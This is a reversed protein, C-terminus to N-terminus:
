GCGAGAGRCQGAHLDLGAPLRLLYRCVSRDGGQPRRRHDGGLQPAGYAGGGSVSTTYSDGVDLDTFGITGASTQIGDEAVQGSGDSKGILVPDNVGHVEIRVFQRAISFSPDIIDIQYIKEHVVGARLLRTDYGQYEWSMEGAGREFLFFDYFYNSVGLSIKVSVTSYQIIHVDSVDADSYRVYGYACDIDDGLVSAFSDASTIVPADNVPNVVLNFSDSASFQGDSATVKLGV